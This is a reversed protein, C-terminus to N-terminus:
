RQDGQSLTMEMVPQLTRAIPSRGAVATKVAEASTMPDFAWGEVVMGLSRDDRVFAISTVGLRALPSIADSRLCAETEAPMLVLLMAM